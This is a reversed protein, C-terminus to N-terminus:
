FTIQSRYLWPRMLLDMLLGRDIRRSAHHQKRPARRDEDLVQDIFAELAKAQSWGPYRYPPAATRRRAAFLEGIFVSKAAVVWSRASM